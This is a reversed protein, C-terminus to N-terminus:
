DGGGLRKGFSKFMGGRKANRTRQTGGEDIDMEENEEGVGRKGVVKGKGNEKGEMLKAVAKENAEERRRERLATRRIERVQGELEALVNACRADWEDLVSIMQPIKGPRLDRLPAVSSVDVRQALPDLKASILGVYITSIVLDELARVSPLALAEQLHHYTLM